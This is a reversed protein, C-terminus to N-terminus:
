RRGLLVHSREVLRHEAAPVAGSCPRCRRAPTRPPRDLLVAARRIASRSKPSRGRPSRTAADRRRIVASPPAARFRRCRTWGSRAGCRNGRAEGLRVRQPGREVHQHAHDVVSHRRPEVVAEAVRAAEAVVDRGAVVAVLVVADDVDRGAHLVLARASTVRSISVINSSSPASAGRGLLEVLRSAADRPVRPRHGVRRLLRAREERRPQEEPGRRGLLVDRLESRTVRSSTRSAARPM